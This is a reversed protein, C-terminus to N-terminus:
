TAEAAGPAFARATQFNLRSSLARGPRHLGGFSFDQRLTM